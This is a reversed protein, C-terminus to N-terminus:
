QPSVATALWQGDQDTMEVLMRFYTVTGHPARINTTTDNLAVIVSATRQSASFSQLATSVAESVSIAKAKKVAPEFLKSQALYKSAFSPAALRATAAYDQDLKRYDFSTFDVALQGGAALATAPNDGIVGDASVQGASSSSGHHLKVAGVVALAAALLAIVLAFVFVPIAPLRPSDVTPDSMVAIRWVTLAHYTRHAVM